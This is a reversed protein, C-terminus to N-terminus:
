FPWDSSGSERVPDIPPICLTEWRAKEREEEGDTHKIECLACRYRFAPMDGGCDNCPVINYEPQYRMCDSIMKIANMTTTLRMNM